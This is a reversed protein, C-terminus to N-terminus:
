DRLVAVSLSSVFFELCCVACSGGVVLDRRQRTLANFVSTVLTSYPFGGSTTEWFISM